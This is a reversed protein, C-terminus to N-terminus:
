RPTALFPGLLDLLTRAGERSGNGTRESQFARESYDNHLVYGAVSELAQGQEIYGGKKGIVVPARSGLGRKGVRQFRLTM